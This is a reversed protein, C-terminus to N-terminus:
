RKKSTKLQKFVWDSVNMTEGSGFHVVRNGESIPMLERLYRKRGARTVM